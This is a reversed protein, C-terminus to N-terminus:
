RWHNRLLIAEEPATVRASTMSAEVQRVVPPEALPEPATRTSPAALVMRMLWARGERCAIGDKEAQPGPHAGRDVLTRFVRCLDGDRARFTSYILVHGFGTALTPQRTLADALVGQATLGDPSRLVFDPPGSPLNIFRGAVLGAMLSLVIAALHAPRWVPAPPKPPRRAERVAALQVIQAPRRREGEGARRQQEGVAGTANQVIGKVTVHRRLREALAPDTALAADVRARARPSLTGAVYASLTEDSISM